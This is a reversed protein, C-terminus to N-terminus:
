SILARERMQERAHAAWGISRGVAFLGIGAFRPLKLVHDLVALADAALADAVRPADGWRSRCRELLVVAMGLTWYSSVNRVRLSRHEPSEAAVRSWLREADELEAVSRRIAEIRRQVRAAGSTRASSKPLSKRGFVDLLLAPGAAPHRSRLERECAACALLHLLAEVEEAFPLRSTLLADLEELRLHHDDDRVSM